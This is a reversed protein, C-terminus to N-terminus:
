ATVVNTRTPSTVPEGPQPILISGDNDDQAEIDNNERSSSVSPIFDDKTLTITYDALKELILIQKNQWDDNNLIENRSIRRSPPHSSNRMYDTEHNRVQAEIDSVDWRWYKIRWSWRCMRWM